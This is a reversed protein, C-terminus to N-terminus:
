REGNSLKLKTHCLGEKKSRHCSYPENGKCYNICGTGDMNVFHKCDTEEDKWLYSTRKRTEGTVLNFEANIVPIKDKCNNCEGTSSIDNHCIPCYYKNDGVSM